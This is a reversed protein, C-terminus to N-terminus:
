AKGTSQETKALALAVAQGEVGRAIALAAGVRLEQGAGRVWAGHCEPDVHDLNLSPPVTDGHVALAAIAVNLAGAGGVLHGTAPKVSSAAPMRGGGFVRRIARAESVDGLPTGSGHVALYDIEEPASAATRLAGRMAHVVSRGDPNPTILSDTDNGSGAGTIRAYVRAGRRRAADLEELVLFAAGEGLVTGDREADFPRCAAAGLDNRPSMMGLTDLKAMNWWSVPSDFGGCIAIQAEGRRIARYARAVAQAGAESGGAFYTNPGQANYAQSLHFLSAAQLGQVYFLPPVSEQAIVGFRDLGATGEEDCSALASDLVDEPESVEKNSGIFVAKGGPDMDALDAAADATALSAGAMALVDVRTMMRRSRRTTFPDPDLDAIEAGIRTRLSSADFARVPGIGSHGALLGKWTADTGVGLATVLGIGTVAVQRM